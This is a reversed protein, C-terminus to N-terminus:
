APGKAKSQVARKILTYQLFGAGIILLIEVFSVLGVRYNLNQYYPLYNGSEGALTNARASFDGFDKTIKLVINELKHLDDTEVTESPLDLNATIKINAYIDKDSEFCVYAESDSLHTYIFNQKPINKMYFRDAEYYKNEIDKIKITLNYEFDSKQNDVEGVLM